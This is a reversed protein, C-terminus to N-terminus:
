IQEQGKKYFLRFKESVYEKMKEEFVSRDFLCAYEHLRSPEFINQKQEFRTVGDIIDAPTQENFHIGTVGDKITEATGGKNLAIVPTGCSLAELPVIGFDEEAAFIFARAQQMYGILSEADLYGAFETNLGAKSKLKEKEPGSGVVVLKKDPMQAFAEVIIDIRKYPVLRSATLYFNGKENSVPFKNTDVPPYIVDSDRNYIRKIKGAIHHSNAIFWTVNDASKIDWERLYKIIKHALSGKLGSNLNAEKLYYEAEDWAYRMPTHCYCIHLQDKRTKVGKAVSHSSSIILDYGSLNFREIANPFLPLYKRHSKEAFPLNQIYSTQSHKGKLILKREQPNLFDVLSFVDADPWVNLLSEICKESGAYNVFWEHVIATKTDQM